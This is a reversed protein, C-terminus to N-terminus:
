STEPRLLPMFRSESTSSIRRSRARALLGFELALRPM